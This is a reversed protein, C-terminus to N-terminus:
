ASNQMQLSMANAIEKQMRQLMEWGPYVHFLPHMRYSAHMRLM